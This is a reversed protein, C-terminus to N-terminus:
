RKAVQKLIWDVAPKPDDLGHPHHKFGPKLILETQGGLRRYNEFLKVTNEPYPVVEDADGCLHLLPVDAKALPELNDVPNKKWALAEAEDKFGYDKILKAWDRPSGPGKGKGGPWSKFDCVPNDGLIAAVGAPNMAAYNYAYLGGRSLGELVCKKALGHKETLLKYFIDFKAMASPCGFTNGVQLHVLHFGNEVLALDIEPRHDFFETRWIWPRGDAAKKPVVVIAPVDAVSFDHREFGRWQSVKGPFALAPAQGISAILIFIASISHM